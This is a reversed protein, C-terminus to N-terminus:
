TWGDWKRVGYKRYMCRVGNTHLTVPRMDGFITSASTGCFWNEWERRRNLINRYLVNFASLLRMGYRLMGLVMIIGALICFQWSISFFVLIFYLFWMKIWLSHWIFIGHSEREVVRIVVFALSYLVFM